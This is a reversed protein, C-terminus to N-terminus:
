RAYDPAPPLSVVGSPAFQLPATTIWWFDPDLLRYQLVNGSHTDVRVLKAPAQMDPMESTIGYLESGSRNSILMFFHLDRGLQAVLHYDTPDVIWAGGPVPNCGRRRDLKSGFIEYVVLRDGAVTVDTLPDVGCESPQDPGPIAIADGLQTSEPSVTWLWGWGDHAAYVYFRHGLWAGSSWCPKGSDTASFSRVMERRVVDYLDLTPGNRLGFWWRGDPSSHWRDGEAIDMASAAASVHQLLGPGASVFDRRSRTGWIGAVVKTQLTLLDISYLWCCGGGVPGEVYITHGDPDAFVGNLGTGESGVNVKITSVTNLTAPDIFQIMGMRRVAIIYDNSGRAHVGICVSLAACLLIAQPLRLM